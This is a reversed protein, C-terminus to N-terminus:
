NREIYVIFTRNDPTLAYLAVEENAAQEAAAHGGTILSDLHDAAIQRRVMSQATALSPANVKVNARSVTNNEEEACSPDNVPCPDEIRHDISPGGHNIIGSM